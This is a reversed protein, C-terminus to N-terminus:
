DNYKIKSERFSISTIVSCNTCKYMYSNGEEFELTYFANMSGSCEKSNPCPTNDWPGPLIRGYKEEKDSKIIEKKIAPLKAAKIPGAGSQSAPPPNIPLLELKKLSSLPKPVGNHLGALQLPNNSLKPPQGQTPGPAQGKAPALAASSRPSPGAEQTPDFAIVQMTDDLYEGSDLDYFYITGQNDPHLAAADCMIANPHQETSM